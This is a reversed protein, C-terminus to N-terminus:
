SFSSFSSSSSSFSSILDLQQKFETYIRQLKLNTTIIALIERLLSHKENGLISSDWNSESSSFPPGLLFQCLERLRLEIGQETLFQALTILWHRYEKSSGLIFASSLQQDIFSLTGTKQLNSNSLFVNHSKKILSNIFLFLFM